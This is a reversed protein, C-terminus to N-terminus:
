CQETGSMGVIHKKVAQITLTFPEIGQELTVTFGKNLLPFIKMGISEHTPNFMQETVVQSAEANPMMCYVRTIVKFRKLKGEMICVFETHEDDIWERQLTDMSDPDKGLMSYFWWDRYQSRTDIDNIIIDFGMPIVGEPLEIDQM